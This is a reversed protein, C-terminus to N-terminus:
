APRRCRRYTGVPACRQITRPQAHCPVSEVGTLQSGGEPRLHLTGRTRGGHGATEDRDDREGRPGDEVVQDVGGVAGLERGDPEQEFYRQDAEPEAQEGAGAATM